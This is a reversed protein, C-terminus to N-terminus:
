IDTKINNTNTNTSIQTGFITPFQTGITSSRTLGLTVYDGNVPDVDIDAIGDDQSGGYYTLLKLNDSSSSASASPNGYDIEVVVPYMPNYSGTMNLRYQNGSVHYWSLAATLTDPLGTSTIKYFAPKDFKIQKNIGQIVLNDGVVATSNAGDIQWLISKIDAYPKLVYYMKMGDGNSYYHLDIYPYVNPIFYREYGQIGTVADPLGQQMYSVMGHNPILPHATAWQNSGVMSIDIRQTTDTGSHTSDHGFLKYSIRNATYYSTPYFYDMTSFLVESCAQVTGQWVIQGKNEYYLHNVNPKEATLPDPPFYVPTQNLKITTYNYNGASNRTQGIVYVVGVGNVAIGTGADTNYNVGDISQKWATNGSPTIQYAYVDRTINSVEGSVYWHHAITDNAIQPDAMLNSEGTPEVNVAYQTGAHTYLVTHYDYTSGNYLTGVIAFNGASDTALATARNSKNSNDYDHHWSVSGSGSIYYITYDLSSNNKEGCIVVDSGSMILGNLRDNNNASGNIILASSWYSTGSSAYLAFVVIDTGNSPDTTNGGVYVYQGNPSVAIAIGEDDLSSGAYTNQWLINGTNGDLKLTVINFNGMAGKSRGTVYVDGNADVCIANAEDIDNALDYAKAWLQSGTPSLKIIVYDEGSGPHHLNESTGAIYANGAADIKIAKGADYGGNDFPFYYKLVGLSDYKLVILNKNSTGIYGAVFVNNNADVANPSAGVADKQSYDQRWDIDAVAYPSLGQSQSNAIFAISSFIGIILKKIM